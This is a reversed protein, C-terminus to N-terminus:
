KKIGFYTDPVYGVTVTEAVLVDTEVTETSRVTGAHAYASAKVSIYISHRTQNIGASEFASKFDTVAFGYIDAEIKIDAGRGNFLESGLLTGLPIKLVLKGSKALLEGVKKTIEAKLMNIKLSDSTISTVAGGADREICVLESYSAGSEKFASGVADSLTISLKNKVANKVASKLTPRLRMDVGVFAWFVCLVFCLTKFLFYKKKRSLLRFSM